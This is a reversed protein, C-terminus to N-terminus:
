AAQGYGPTSLVVGARELEAEIRFREIDREMGSSDSGLDHEIGLMECAQILVRDYALRNGLQHAASRSADVAIMARLRRLDAAIREIPVGHQNRLARVQRRHESAEARQERFREVRGDWRGAALDYLFVCLIPVCIMVGVAVAGLVLQHSDVM